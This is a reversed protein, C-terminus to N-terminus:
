DLFEVCSLLAGFGTDEGGALEGSFVLCNQWHSLGPFDVDLKVFVFTELDNFEEITGTTGAPILAEPFREVDQTFRVRRGERVDPYAEHIQIVRQDESGDQAIPSPLLPALKLALALNYTGNLDICGCDETSYRGVSWEPDEPAGDLNGDFSIVLATKDTNLTKRWVWLNGGTHHPEYGAERMITAVENPEPAPTVTPSITM